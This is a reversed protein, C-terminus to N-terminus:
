IYNGLIFLIFIHVPYFIYFLWKLGRGKEGNYILMFPLALIMMWQYNILFLNEYTFSFGSIFVFTLASFIPYYM